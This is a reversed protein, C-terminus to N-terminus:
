MAWLMALLATKDNEEINEMEYEQRPNHVSDKFCEVYIQRAWWPKKEGRQVIEAMRGM